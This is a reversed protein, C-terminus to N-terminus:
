LFFGSDRPFMLWPKGIKEDRKLAEILLPSGDAYRVDMGLEQAMLMCAAADYLKERMGIMGRYRQAMTFVGDVVFAGTCRMKGPMSSGSVHKVVTENYSVLNHPKIEGPPIQQLLEGNRTVGHGKASLYMEELQPLFVAGLEIDPGRVLAISIGWLPSGFTFNSTGDIPDVVWLGGAGEDSFGSEEGWVTSGPLMALLQADVYQEVLDDANTVISGDPKLRHDLKERADLAITAGQRCIDELEPLLHAYSV